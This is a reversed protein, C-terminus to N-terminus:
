ARKESSSVSAYLSLETRPQLALLHYLHSTFGSSWIGSGERRQQPRPQATCRLSLAAPARLPVDVCGSLMQAANCCNTITWVWLSQWSCRAFYRINRIVTRLRSPTQLANQFFRSGFFLNFVYFLCSGIFGSKPIHGFSNFIRVGVFVCRCYERCGLAPFLGFTLWWSSPCVVLPVDVCHLLRVCLLIFYLYVSCHLCVKFDYWSLPAVCTRM